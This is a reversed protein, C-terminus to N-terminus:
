RRGAAIRFLGLRAHRRRFRSRLNVHWITKGTAAELCAVDGNGGEVYVRDGDVTPTGRPGDGMGNRYGGVAGRLEDATLM